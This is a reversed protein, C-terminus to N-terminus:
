PSPAGPNVPKGDRYAYRESVQGVFRQIGEPRLEPVEPKGWRREAEYVSTDLPYAVLEGSLHKEALWVDALAKRSFVVTVQVAGEGTFLWVCNRAVRRRLHRDEPLERTVFEISMGLTRLAAVVASPDPPDAIVVSYKMAASWRLMFRLGGELEFAWHFERGGATCLSDEEIFGPEGLPRLEERTAAFTVVWDEDDYTIAVPFSVPRM